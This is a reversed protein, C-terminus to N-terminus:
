LVRGPAAALRAQDLAVCTSPSRRRLARATQRSGSSRAFPRRLARGIRALGAEIRENRLWAPPAGIFLRYLLITVLATLGWSLLVDSLFHGGFAIRNVSLASLSFRRRLRGGARRWARPVVFAVAMLWLASSAEGAVFSCNRACYDTMRWVAVYPMDGGFAEIMVPRPRGWNDKLITNVLLGPGLILASLLFLSVSPPVISRRDPMAIRALISLLFGAAILWMTWDGAKRFAKLFPDRSAAFGQVPDYFLGSVRLDIVPWVLFVATVALCFLLALVLPDVVRSRRGGGSFEGDTRTM